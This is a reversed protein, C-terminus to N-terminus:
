IGCEYIQLPSEENLPEKERNGYKALVKLGAQNLLRDLTDPYYMRMDFEFCEPEEILPRYFYWKISNIETEPDYQNTEKVTCYGGDPHAFSTVDDAFSKETYLFVPDPIFVELLFRGIPSLHERVCNLCALADEDTKLHLFSNFGIFISKYKQGLDFSRMDGQVIRARNNYTALKKQAVRVYEPSLEIGTYKLGRHLVPLALRGTGCALELAPGGVGAAWDGIFDQDNTKWWHLADYLEPASYIDRLQTM